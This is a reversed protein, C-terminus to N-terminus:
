KRDNMKKQLLLFKLFLKLREFYFFAIIDDGKKLM